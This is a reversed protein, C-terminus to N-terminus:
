SVKKRGLILLAHERKPTQAMATKLRMSAKKKLLIMLQVKAKLGQKDVLSAEHEYDNWVRRSCQISLCVLDSQIFPHDILLAQLIYVVFVCSHNIMQSNYRTMLCINRLCCGAIFGFTPVNRSMTSFPYTALETILM